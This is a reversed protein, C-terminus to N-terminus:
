PQTHTTHQLEWSTQELLSIFSGLPLPDGDQELLQVLAAVGVTVEGVGVVKKLYVDGTAEPGVARLCGQGLTRNETPVEPM